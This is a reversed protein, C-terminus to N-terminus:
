MNFYNSFTNDCKNRMSIIEKMQEPLKKYSKEVSENKIRFENIFISLDKGVSYNEQSLIKYIEYFSTAQKNITELMSINEEMYTNTGNIINKSPNNLFNANSNNLNSNEDKEKEIYEKEIESELNLFYGVSVRMLKMSKSLKVCKKIYSTITAENVYNNGKLAKIEVVRNYKDKLFQFMVQFESVEGKRNLMTSCFNKIINKQRKSFQFSNDKISGDIITMGMVKVLEMMKMKMETDNLTMEINILIWPLNSNSNKTM